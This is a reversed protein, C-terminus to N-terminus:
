FGFIDKLPKKGSPQQTPYPSPTEKKDEGQIAMNIIKFM